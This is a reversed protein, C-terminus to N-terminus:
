LLGMASAITELHHSQDGFDLGAAVIRKHFLHLPHEECFSIAGLLQHARRAVAQSTRGAYSKAMAVDAACATGQDMKWAAWHLLCRATEVDRLLDACAHQVAQFAGLPRGFQRRTKAHEVCLELIRQACGVMEATRALAGARLAPALLDWGRGAKGLLDGARVEVGAFSVECPRDGAMAEMPLVAIGSRVADLLLLNVGAAGRTVVILDDAVHADNVFLKRGSLRTGPEGDLRIAESEFSASEETLALAGLRDGRAMAPLLRGRRAPDADAALLATAVVSSQVYPSPFCARGMEEMLLSLDVMTGGSGGYEAPVLLGTWGLVSVEKWLEASFGRASAAGDAVVAPLCRRQLFDRATHVLLQQGDSLRFDM